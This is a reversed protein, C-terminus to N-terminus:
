AKRILAAQAVPGAALVKSSREGASGDAAATHWL